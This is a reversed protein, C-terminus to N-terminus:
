LLATNLACDRPLVLGEKCLIRTGRPMLSASGQSRQTM